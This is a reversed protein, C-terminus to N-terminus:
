SDLEDELVFKDVLFEKLEKTSEVTIIEMGPYIISVTDEETKDSDIPIFFGQILKSNIYLDHFQYDEDGEHMGTMMRVKM